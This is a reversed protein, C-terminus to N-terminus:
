TSKNRSKSKKSMRKKCWDYMVCLIALPTERRKNRLNVDMEPEKLLWAIFDENLQRVGCHLPADLDGITRPGNKIIPSRQKKTKDKPLYKAEIRENYAAFREIFLKLFTVYKAIDNLMKALIGQLSFRNVFSKQGPLHNKIENKERSYIREMRSIDEGYLLTKFDNTRQEDSKTDDLIANFRKRVEELEKETMKEEKESTKSLLPNEIDFVEDSTSAMKGRLLSKFM